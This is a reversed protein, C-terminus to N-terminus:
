CTPALLVSIVCLDPWGQPGCAIADLRRQVPDRPHFDSDAITVNYSVVVGRGLIIRHACMFVAGVLVCDDGISLSGEPDISFSSWMYVHVRDGLRLGTQQRSRCRAFSARSELFCDHGVQITPPLSAYDWRGTVADVEGPGLVDSM